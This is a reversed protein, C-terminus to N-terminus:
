RKYVFIGRYDEYLIFNNEQLTSVLVDQMPQWQDNCAPYFFLINQSVDFNDHPKITIFFEKKKTKNQYNLFANLIHKQWRRYAAYYTNETLKNDSEYWIFKDYNNYESLLNTIYPM